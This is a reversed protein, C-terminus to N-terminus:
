DCQIFDCCRSCSPFYYGELAINEATPSNEETDYCKPGPNNVLIYAAGFTGDPFEENDGQGIAIALPTFEPPYSNFSDFVEHVSCGWHSLTDDTLEHVNHILDHDEIIHVDDPCGRQGSMIFTGFYDLLPVTVSDARFYYCSFSVYLSTCYSNDTVFSLGNQILETGGQTWHYDEDTGLLLINGDVAASWVASNSEATDLRSEDTSCHPDSFVIANCKAFDETTMLLWNSPSIIEVALGLSNTVYDTYRSTVSLVGGYFCVKGENSCATAEGYNIVLSTLVSVLLPIYM